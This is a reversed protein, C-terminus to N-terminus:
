GLLKSYKKQSLGSSYGDIHCPAIGKATNRPALSSDPPPLHDLYLNLTMEKKHIHHHIKIADVM